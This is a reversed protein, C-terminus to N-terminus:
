EETSEPEAVQNTNREFIVFRDDGYIKTYNPDDEILMKLKANKYTMVHTIGYQEFKDKYDTGINSINLYDSFIDLGEYKKTEKNKTGNFQPTYLDARSDIFVPIGRYVM